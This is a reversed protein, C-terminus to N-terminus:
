YGVIADIYRSITKANPRPSINVAISPRRRAAAIAHPREDSATIASAIVERERAGAQM